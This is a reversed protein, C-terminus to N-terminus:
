CEEDESENAALTQALLWDAATRAAARKSCRVPPISEPESMLEAADIPPATDGSSGNGSPASSDEPDTRAVSMEM